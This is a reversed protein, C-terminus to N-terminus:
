AKCCQPTCPRQKGQFGSTGSPTTNQSCTLGVCCSEARNSLIRQARSAHFSSSNTTVAMSTHHRHSPECAMQVARQLTTSGQVQTSDVDRDQATHDKESDETGDQTTHYTHHTDEDPRTVCPKVRCLAPQPTIVLKTLQHQAIDLGVLPQCVQDDPICPVHHSCCRQSPANSCCSCGCVCAHCPTLLFPMVFCLTAHQRGV